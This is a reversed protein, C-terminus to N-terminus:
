ARTEKPPSGEIRHLKRIRLVDQVIEEKARMHTAVERILRRELERGWAEARLLQEALARNDAVLGDIEDVTM